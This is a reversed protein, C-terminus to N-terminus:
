STQATSQSVVYTRPESGADNFINEVFDEDKPGLSAPMSILIGSGTTPIHYCFGGKRRRPTSTQEALDSINRNRISSNGDSFLIMSDSIMGQPWPPYDYNEQQHQKTTAGGLMFHIGSSSASCFASHSTRDFDDGITSVSEWTRDMIDFSWIARKRPFPLQSTYNLQPDSANSGGGFFGGTEYIKTGAADSWLM